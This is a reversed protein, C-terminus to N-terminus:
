SLLSECFSSWLDKPTIKLEVSLSTLNKLLPTKLADKTTTILACDQTKALNNLYQQDNDSYHHHDPYSIKEKIELGLQELTRFFREPDGIGTFAIYTKIRCPIKQAVISAQLLPINKQGILQELKKLATNEKKLIFEPNEESSQKKSSNQLFLCLDAKKLGSDLSERLPGAPILYENGLLRNTDFVCITRDKKWYPSQMGDDLLIFDPKLQEILNQACLASKSAIVPGYESLLLSEDGVLEPKDDKHVIKGKKLQGRYAKTVIVFSLNKERLFKALSIIVQTKGTGGVSINGVCIVKGSVALPKVILKRFWGLLFFLASFPLLAKSYFSKKSWFQPYNLSIM